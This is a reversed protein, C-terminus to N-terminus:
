LEIILINMLNDITDIDRKLSNFFTLTRGLVLLFVFIVKFKKSYSM